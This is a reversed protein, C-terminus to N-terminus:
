TMDEVAMDNKQHNHGARKGGTESGTKNYRPLSHEIVIKGLKSVMGSIEKM